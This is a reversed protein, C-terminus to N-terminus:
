HINKYPFGTKTRIEITRYSLIYNRSILIQYHTDLDRFLLFGMDMHEGPQTVVYLEISVHFDLEVNM